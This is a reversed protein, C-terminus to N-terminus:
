VKNEGFVLRNKVIGLSEGKGTAGKIMGDWKDKATKRGINARIM